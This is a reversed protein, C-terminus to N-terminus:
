RDRMGHATDSSSPVLATSVNPRRTDRTRAEISDFVRQDVSHQGNATPRDSGRKRVGISAATSPNRARRAGPGADDCDQRAQAGVDRRASARRSIAPKRGPNQSCPWYCVRSRNRRGLVVCITRKPSWRLSALIISVPRGTGVFDDGIAFMKERMQYQTGESGGRNRRLPM